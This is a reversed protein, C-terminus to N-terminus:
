FRYIYFFYMILDFNITILDFFVNTVTNVIKIETNYQEIRKRIIKSIEDARIIVM